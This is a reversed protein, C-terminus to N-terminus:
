ERIYKILNRVGRGKKGNRVIWKGTEPWFDIDDKVILHAGGNKSEFRIGAKELMKRSQERNHRRREQSDKRMANFVEGMDGM